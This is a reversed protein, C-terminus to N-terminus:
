TPCQDGSLMNPSGLRDTLTGFQPRIRLGDAADELCGTIARCTDALPAEAISSSMGVLLSEIMPETEEALGPSM